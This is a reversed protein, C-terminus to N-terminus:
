IIRPLKNVAETMPLLAPDLYDKEALDVNRQRMLQMRVTGPVGAAALLSNHTKRLSHFVAVHGRHDKIPIGALALDARFRRSVFSEADLRFVRARPEMGYTMSRFARAVHAAIPVTERRGSKTLDPPLDLYAQAEDRFHGARLGRLEGARLGTCIALAYLERRPEDILECDLLTQIEVQTLARREIRSGSFEPTTLPSREIRGTRVCFGLLSVWYGRANNATGCSVGARYRRLAADLANPTIDALVQWGHDAIFRSVLRRAKAIYAPSCSDASLRDVWDAVHRGIPLRSLAPDVVLLGAARREADTLLRVLVAQAAAKDTM